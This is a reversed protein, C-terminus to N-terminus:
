NHEKKYREVEMDAIRTPEPIRYKTVCQMVIEVSEDFGVLHGPSVFIPKVNNRTRLVSGIQEGSRDVLIESSGKEIGPEKYEGYLRSKACGISPINLLLGIHSAIGFKRPHAVGQGDFLIVNPRNQLKEFAKM